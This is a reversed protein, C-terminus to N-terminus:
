PVDRLDTKVSLEVLIGSDCCKRICSIEVCDRKSQLNIIKHEETWDFTSKEQIKETAYYNVDHQKM